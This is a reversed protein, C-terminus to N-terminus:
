QAEEEPPQVTMAAAADAEAQRRKTMAVDFQAKCIECMYDGPIAENGCTTIKITKSHDAIVGCPDAVCASRVSCGSHDIKQIQCKM